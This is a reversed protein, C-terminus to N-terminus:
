KMYANDHRSLYAIWARRRAKRQKPTLPYSRIDRVVSEGKIYEDNGSKVFLGHLWFYLKKILEM